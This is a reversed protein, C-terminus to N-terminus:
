SNSGASVGVVCRLVVELCLNWLVSFSVLLVSDLHAAGTTNIFQKVCPLLEWATRTGAADTFEKVSLHELRQQSKEATREISAPEGGKSEQYKVSRATVLFASLDPGLSRGCTQPKASSSTM